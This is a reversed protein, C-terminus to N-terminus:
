LNEGPQQKMHSLEDIAAVTSPIGSFCCMIKEIIQNHVIDDDIPRIVGAVKHSARQILASKVNQVDQNTKAMM